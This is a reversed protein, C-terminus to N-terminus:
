DRGYGRDWRDRNDWRNNGWGWWGNDNRNWSDNGWGYGYRDSNRRLQGLDDRIERRGQAIEAADRRIEEKKREIESRSAGRRYLRRLDARDREYEAHDRRLEARDRYLEARASEQARAARRDLDRQRSRADADARNPVTFALLSVIGAALLAVRGKTNM